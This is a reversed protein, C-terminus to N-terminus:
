RILWLILLTASSALMFISLIARLRKQYEQRARLVAPSGYYQDLDIQQQVNWPKEKGFHTTKLVFSVKGSRVAYSLVKIRLIRESDDKASDLVFSFRCLTPLSLNKCDRRKRLFFSAWPLERGPYDIKGLAQIKHWPMIEGAKTTIGQENADAILLKRHPNGQGM